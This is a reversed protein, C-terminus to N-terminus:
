PMEETAFAARLAAAAELPGRRAAAVFGGHQFFAHIMGPYVRCDVPVRAQELRRAYALGEDLLPDHSALAM